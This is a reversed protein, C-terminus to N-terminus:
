RRRLPDERPRRRKTKVKRTKAKYSITGTIEKEVPRRRIKKAKDRITGTITGKVLRRRTKKAKNSITGTM